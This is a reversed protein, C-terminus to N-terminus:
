KVVILKALSIKLYETVISELFKHITQHTVM